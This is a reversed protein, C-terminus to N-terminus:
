SVPRLSLLDLVEGRSPQLADVGYTERVRGALTAIAGEEGHTLVLPPCDRFAGYWRLLGSQGAHASLGGVTHVQAAVRMSEGWLSIRSAGEVLRRGLTGRAQFGVIIVHTQERWINHKLHHRIRGGTCMGSGAIIIAGSRIRNLAMSEETSLTYRLNPLTFPDEGPALGADADANFLDRHQGYVQTARIAMPSDLFLSWRDIGWEHFHRRFVYLLQQTRGVAFSPILINGKRQEADRLIDALEDWTADWRRHERDGYTSEMIVLDADTLLTPERLIPAGLHGLDGSFALKRTVGGDSAWVEVVASGLIHGADNFRAEVGPAIEVRAGYDLGRFRHMTDDAQQRTYLPQVPKLGKRERKRNEIEADREALYAADALMIRCLDRTARHTHIRGRFGAAALQPLRGSHDLHAHTLIVADISAPDFPFPERNREEDRRGGQVLGCDVLVRSRGVSLLYCSGTVEGAAGLFQMRM